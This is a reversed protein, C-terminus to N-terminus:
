AVLRILCTETNDGRRKGIRIIQTYGGPREKYRPAIVDFLKNYVTKQKVIRRVERHNDKKAYTILREAVKRLEKAKPVTTQIREYLFLSMAMNGLMARRHPGKKSLKRGGFNKIM